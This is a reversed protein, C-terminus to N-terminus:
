RNISKNIMYDIVRQSIIVGNENLKFPDEPGWFMTRNVEALIVRGTSPYFWGSAGLESTNVPDGWVEYVKANTNSIQLLGTSFGQTVYHSSNLINIQHEPHPNDPHWTINLDRVAKHASEGFLGVYGGKKKYENVKGVFTSDSSWDIFIVIDYYDMDITGNVVENITAVDYDWAYGMGSYHVTIWNSWDTENGLAVVFLIHKGITLTYDTINGENNMWDTCRQSITHAGYGFGSFWTYSVDETVNDFAGDVPFSYSWDSGDARIKCSKIRSGGTLNDDGVALITTPEYVHVRRNYTSVNRVIPGINDGGGSVEIALAISDEAGTADGELTIYGTYNGVPSDNAVTVTLYKEVCSDKGIAGLSATNSMFSGPEGSSPTFNVRSVSTKKNTCIQFVKTSSESRNLTANFLPPIATLPPRANPDALVQLIVPLKVVESNGSSDSATIEIETTYIGVARDNTTFYATFTGNTGAAQEANNKDLAFSTSNDSWTSALSVNIQNAWINSIAFGKAVKDDPEMTVLLTNRSLEVMGYGIRVKNGESVVWILYKGPNTPLTGHMDFEETQVYDNEDANLRINKGTIETSISDVGPPITIFVKKKAGVGQSYVEKAASSIDSLADKAENGTKTKNLDAIQGQMLFYFTLLVILAVAAILVLEFSTQGKRQFQFCGM